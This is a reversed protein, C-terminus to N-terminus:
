NDAFPTTDDDIILTFGRILINIGYALTGEPILFNIAQNCGTIGHCTSSNGIDDTIFTFKGAKVHARFQFEHAYFYARNTIGM